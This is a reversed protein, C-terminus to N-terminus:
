LANRVPGGLHQCIELSDLPTLLSCASVCVRHTNIGSKIEPLLYAKKVFFTLNM